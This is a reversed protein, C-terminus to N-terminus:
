ISDIGYEVAACISEGPALILLHATDQKGDVYLNHVDHSCTWNELCIYPANEPSYIVSHTFAADARVTLRKGIAEYTLTMPADPTMGQYVEDIVMGAISRPVRLDFPADAPDALDGRTRDVWRKMPVHVQIRERPGHLKFYPHLGFGFPLRAAPDLNSIKAAARLRRKSLSVTLELRNLIPFESYLPDDATLEYSFRASVSDASVFPGASRFPAEIVYGHRYFDGRNPKLRFTRGDFEFQCNRVMGPFPYLVPIGFHRFDALPDPAPYLYDTGDVAYRRINAGRAPIIAAEAATRGGETEILVWEEAAFEACVRKEFRYAM